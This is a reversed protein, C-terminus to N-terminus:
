AASRHLVLDKCTVAGGSVAEIRVAQYLRPERERSRWKKVCSDSVGMKKAFRADRIGQSKLWDDLKM